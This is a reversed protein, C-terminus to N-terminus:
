LKKLKSIHKELKTLYTQDMLTMETHVLRLNKKAYTLKQLVMEM